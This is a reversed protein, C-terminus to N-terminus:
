GLAGWKVWNKMPGYNPPTMKQHQMSKPNNCWGLSEATITKRDESIRRVGGWFRCSICQGETSSSMSFGRQAAGANAFVGGAILGGVAIHGTRRVFERRKMQTQSKDSM